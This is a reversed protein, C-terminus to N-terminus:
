IFKGRTAYFSPAMKHWPTFGTVLRQTRGAAAAVYGKMLIEHVHLQLQGSCKPQRGERICNAFHDILSERPKMRDVPVQYCDALGQWPVRKAGTIPGHPSHVVLTDGELWLTGRRGHVVTANRVFSTGWLSRVVAQQGTPWEIILTANDDVNSHVRKGGGVLRRPILNNVRGTVWRAPGLLSVLRSVPYVMCDLMAGGQAVSKDYYWNNRPPGPAVLMSEAGTFKGLTEENLYDLATLLAPTHDFPLQMLVADRAQALRVMARADGLSTAMPKENLVHIGRSLAARAHTAHLSHPTAVVVGDPEMEDLMREPNDFWRAVGHERAKREASALRRACTAVFRVDRRLAAQQFYRESIEGCGIMALNLM